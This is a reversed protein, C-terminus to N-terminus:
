FLPIELYTFAEELPGANIKEQSLNVVSKNRPRRHWLWSVSRRRNALECVRSLASATSGQPWFHLGKGAEWLRERLGRTDEVAHGWPIAAPSRHTLPPAPGQASQRPPQDNPLQTVRARRKAERPLKEAVQHLAM